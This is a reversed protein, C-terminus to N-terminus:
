FEGLHRSIMEVLKGAKFPKRIYASAGLKMAEEEASDDGKASLVLIPLRAFEPAARLARLVEYGSMDPMMIDLIIIDPKGTRAMKIGEAGSHAKMLAYGKLHLISDLLELVISHDDIALVKKKDTM